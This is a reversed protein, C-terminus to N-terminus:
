RKSFFAFFLVFALMLGLAPIIFLGIGAFAKYAIFWGANIIDDNEIDKPNIVGTPKVYTIAGTQWVDAQSNPVSDEVINTILYATDGWEVFGLYPIVCVFDSNSDISSNYDIGGNIYIGYHCKGAENLKVLFTVLATNSDINLTPYVYVISPAITDIAYYTPELIEINGIGDVSWYFIEHNGDTNLEIGINGDEGWGASSNVDDVTYYFASCGSFADFCSFQINADAAQWGNSYNDHITAPAAKDIDYFTEDDAEVNNVTDSSYFFIEHNGDASLAIGINADGWGATFNSDDVSYYFTGCGSGADSCSFQINADTNQWGEAFNDHITEPALNDETYSDSSQDPSYDAGDYLRCYVTNLDNGIDGLGVCNMDTYPSTIDVATCFNATAETPNASTGCFLTLAASEADGVGSATVRIHGNEKAYTINLDIGSMYPPNVPVFSLLTPYNADEEITWVNDFDWGTFTAEKYMNATTKGTGCNGVADAEGSTETDWFNNSYVGEGADNLGCLGGLTNGAVLGTSYSRIFYGVSGASVGHLGILGGTWSSGGFVSVNKQYVNTINTDAGSWSSVEAVLGGALCPTGIIGNELFVNTITSQQTMSGVLGASKCGTGSPTWINFDVMGINKVTAGTMYGILAGAGVMEMWLNSITYNNGDLQGEFQSGSSGIPAFGKGDAHIWNVTDACDIDSGLEFYVTNDSLHANMDQLDICDMLMYPDAETGAGTYKPDLVSFIKDDVIDVITFAWEGENHPVAMTARLYSEGQRLSIDMYGEKILFGAKETFAKTGIFNKEPNITYYVPVQELVFEDYLPKGITEIAQELKINQVQSFQKSEVFDAMNVILAKGCNNTIKYEVFIEGQANPRYLPKNSEVVLCTDNHLGDNYWAFSAPLYLAFVAFLVVLAIIKKM